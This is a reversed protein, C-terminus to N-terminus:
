PGLSNQKLKKIIFAIKDEIRIDEFKIEKWERDSQEEEGPSRNNYAAMALKYAEQLDGM